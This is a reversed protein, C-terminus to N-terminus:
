VFAVIADRRKQENEHINKHHPQEPHQAINKDFFKYFRVIKRSKKM